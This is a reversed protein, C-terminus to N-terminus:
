HPLVPPALFAFMPLNRLIHVGIEGIVLMPSIRFMIGLMYFVNSFMSHESKQDKRKM